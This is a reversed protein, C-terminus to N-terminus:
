IRGICKMADPTELKGETQKNMELAWTFGCGVGRSRWHFQYTNSTLIEREQEQIERIQEGLHSWLRYMKSRQSSNHSNNRLVCEWPEVTQEDEKTKTTLLPRRTTVVRGTSNRRWDFFIHPLSECNMANTQGANNLLSGSMKNADKLGAVQLRFGFPKLEPRCYALRTRPGQKELIWGFTTTQGRGRDELVDTHMRGMRAVPEYRWVRAWHLPSFSRPDIKPMSLLKKHECSRWSRGHPEGM